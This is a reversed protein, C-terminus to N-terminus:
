QPICAGFIVFAFEDAGVTGTMHGTAQDIVVNWARGEQFGQLILNGKQKEITTVPSTLVRQNKSKGTLQKSKFDIKVFDPFNFNGATGKVCDSGPACEYVEVVACALPKSGDFVDTFGSVPIVLVVFVIFVLSLKKM